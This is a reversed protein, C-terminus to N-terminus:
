PRTINQKQQEVNLDSSPGDGMEQDHEEGVDHPNGSFLSTELVPTNKHDDLASDVNPSGVVRLNTALIM